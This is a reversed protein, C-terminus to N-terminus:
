RKILFKITRFDNPIPLWKETARRPKPKRPQKQLAKYTVMYVQIVKQIGKLSVREPAICFGELLEKVDPSLSNYTLNM